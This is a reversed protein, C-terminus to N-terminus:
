HPLWRTSVVHFIINGLTAQQNMKQPTTLTISGNLQVGNKAVLIGGFTKNGGGNLTLDGNTAINGPIVINSGGITVNGSSVLTLGELQPIPQYGGNPAAECPSLDGYNTCYGLSPDDFPTLTAPAVDSGHGTTTITGTAAVTIGYGNPAASVIADGQVYYFGPISANSIEWSGNSYGIGINSLTAACVSNPTLICSIGGSTSLLGELSNSYLPLDNSPIVVTPQGNNMLLQVTAAYQFNQPRIKPFQDLSVFEVASGNFRINNQNQSNAAVIIKPQSTEVQGNGTSDKGIVFNPNGNINLSQFQAELVSENDAYAPGFQGLSHVLVQGQFGTGTTPSEM